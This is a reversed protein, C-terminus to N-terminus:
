RPDAYHLARHANITELCANLYQTISAGWEPKAFHLGHQCAYAQVERWPTEGTFPQYGVHEFNTCKFERPHSDVRQAHNGCKSCLGYGYRQADPYRTWHRCIECSGQVSTSNSM